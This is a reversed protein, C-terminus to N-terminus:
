FVCSFAFKESKTLISRGFYQFDGRFWINSMNEPTKLVKQAEFVKWIALLTTKPPLKVDPFGLFMLFTCIEETFTMNKAM